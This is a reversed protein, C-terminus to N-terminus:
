AGSMHVGLNEKLHKEPDCVGGLRAVAGVLDHRQKPISAFAARLGVISPIYGCMAEQDIVEQL